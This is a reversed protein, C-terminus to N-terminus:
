EKMFVVRLRLSSKTAWAFAIAVFSCIESVFITSSPRTKRRRRRRFRGARLSVSKGAEDLRPPKRDPISAVLLRDSNSAVSAHGRVDIEQYGRKAAIVRVMSDRLIPERLRSFRTRFPAVRQDQFRTRSNASNLTMSLLNRPQSKTLNRTQSTMCLLRIIIRVM